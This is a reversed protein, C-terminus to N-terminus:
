NPLAVSVRVDDTTNQTRDPGQSGVTIQSRTQILYYPKGWPDRGENIGGRFNQKMWVQFRLPTPVDKNQNHAEAIKRIIINAENRAAWRRAPAQVKDGVPGMKSLVPDLPGAIRNRIEPIGFAAGLLVVVVFIIKFM